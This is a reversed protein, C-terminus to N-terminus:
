PATATTTQQAQGSDTLVGTTAIYYIGLLALGVLVSFIKIWLDGRVYFERDIHEQPDEM